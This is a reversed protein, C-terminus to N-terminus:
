VPAPPGLLRKFDLLIHKFFVWKPGMEVKKVKGNKDKYSGQTPM